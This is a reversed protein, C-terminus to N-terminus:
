VLVLEGGICKQATSFLLREFVGRRPGGCTGRGQQRFM